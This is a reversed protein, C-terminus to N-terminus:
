LLGRDLLRRFASKGYRSAPNHTVMPDGAVWRKFDPDIYQELGPTKELPIAFAARIETWRMALWDIYTAFFSHRVDKM